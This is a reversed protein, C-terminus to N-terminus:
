SEGHEAGLALAAAVREAERERWAPTGLKPFGTAHFSFSCGDVTVRWRNAWAGKRRLLGAIAVYLAEAEDRDAQTWVRDDPRMPM